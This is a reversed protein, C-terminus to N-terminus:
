LHRLPARWLLLFAALKFVCPLLAYAAALPLLAASDRMGPQYGLLALVPLAIGAALALNLKAAWNWWGFYVGECRQSHGAEAMVAALLAPPLALDAGLAMGSGICILLFSFVAGSQLTYAWIFSVMALAMALLWARAEGHGAALRVWLPMSLAAALFYCALFAGAHDALQLVDEVFFLFLTAPMAAAIGNLVFVAFLWRFPPQIWPVWLAKLSGGSLLQRQPQPAHGLLIWACCLLVLVFSWSLAPLGIWGPLVAALLVGALGCAERMATLRSRQARAQSLAAGWGQYAISALSYGLYVVALSGLLWLGPPMGDQPHFLAVMGAALLPLAIWMARRLRAPHHDLWLGILPDLVADLLRAVLLLGGLAALSLATHAAYFQPLHVYVPLALLALPLAFLGYAFLESALLNKM